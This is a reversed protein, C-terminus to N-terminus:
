RPPPAFTANLLPPAFTANVLSRLLHQTLSPTSCIWFTRVRLPAAAAGADAPQCPLRLGRTPLLPLHHHRHLM